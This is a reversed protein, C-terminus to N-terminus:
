EGEKNETEVVPEVETAVVVMSPRIVKGHLTYGKQVVQVITNAPVDARPSQMVAQHMHPDFLVKESQIEQVGLKELVSHFQKRILGVGEVLEKVTQQATDSIHDSAREVNDLIPLIDLVVPEAAFKRFQAVEQDKRKKFNELEALGRIRRDREEAVAAEQEQLKDQLANKIVTMEALQTRLIVLDDQEPVATEVQNVPEQTDEQVM